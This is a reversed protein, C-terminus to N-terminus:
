KLKEKLNTIFEEPNGLLVFKSRKDTTLSEPIEEGIYVIKDLIDKDVMEITQRKGASVGFWYGAKFTNPTGKEM